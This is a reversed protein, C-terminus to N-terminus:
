VGWGCVRSVREVSAQFLGMDIYDRNITTPVFVVSKLALHLLNHVIEHDERQRLEFGRWIHPNASTKLAPPDCTARYPTATATTCVIASKCTHM